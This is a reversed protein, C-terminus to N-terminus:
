KNGMPSTFVTKRFESDVLPELEETFNFVRGVCPPVRYFGFIRDLHYTAATDLYYLIITFPESRSAVTIIGIETSHQEIHLYYILDPNRTYDRPLHM